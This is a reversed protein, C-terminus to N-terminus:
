NGGLVFSDNFGADELALLVQKKATDQTPLPGVVVRYLKQGEHVYAFTKVPHSFRSSLTKAHALASRKSRYSAVQIFEGAQATVRRGVGSRDKKAQALLTGSAAGKDHDAGLKRKPMPYLFPQPHAMVTDTRALHPLYNQALLVSEPELCEVRVKTIGERKFGLLIAAKESVDIIRGKAFPGRDNVRLKISRGNQLNTVRVVSPLPLTKHACTLGNKSFVEGTSTKKGNFGDGAGYYSAMGTEVYKYHVQPYYRRGKIRYSRSYGEGVQKKHSSVGQASAPDSHMCGSMVFALFLLLCVQRVIKTAKKIVCLTRATRM